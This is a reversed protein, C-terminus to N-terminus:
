ITFNNNVVFLETRQFRKKLKKNQSDKLWYYSIKDNKQKKRIFFVKEKNFYSVNQVSLKYFKGPASNKRIREALFQVKENINLNERM